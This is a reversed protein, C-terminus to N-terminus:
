IWLKIRIFDILRHTWIWIVPEPQVDIKAEGEMGPRWQDSTQELTAFVTFVNEGEKPTGQQIVREIHFPMRENPLSTTALFGKQPDEGPKMEHLWQIDREAVSLEARLGSESMDYLVDGQKVPAGVKDRWDGSLVFGAYPARIISRDIRSQRLAAESLAVEREQLAQKYDALKTPDALYKQAEDFKAQAEAEFRLQELKVDSTDMVLLVDGAKVKQGPQHDVEKIYGDFPVCLTRKDIPAFTFPATVHFMPKYLCIILLTAVSLLIISKALMHKPGVALKATERTSIAAKTILWRDNQYRDYLQPAILEAAVALATAARPDLPRQAPFELTVVGQVDSGRHLPLSLVAGGGSMRSLAQAERTVNASGEGNPDFQVLEGQDLCEEMTRELQVSLEQKRDFEESHSIAKLKIKNGKLWGISVRAAVTRTALENALNMASSDFGDATAVSTALQLVYQHTAAMDRAQENGRRLTFLEFYGAVLQMSTLRQQARELDRCRTIVASVAVVRNDARLLTVLCFQPEVTEKQAGAGIEIAGDKNQVICPKVIDAFAQIAASRIEQTSQDPRIHEILQLRMEAPKPAGGEEEPESAQVMEILFGAAETGAVVVAQTTLLDRVFAPLDSGAALLRQVLRSRSINQPTQEASSSAPQTGEVIGTAM